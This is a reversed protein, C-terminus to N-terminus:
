PYKQSVVNRSAAGSAKNDLAVATHTVIVIDSFQGGKMM